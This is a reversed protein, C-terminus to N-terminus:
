FFFHAKLQIIQLILARAHGHLETLSEQSYDKNQEKKWIGAVSCCEKNARLLDGIDRDITILLKHQSSSSGRSPACLEDAGTM